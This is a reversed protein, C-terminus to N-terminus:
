SLSRLDINCCLNPFQSRIHTYTPFELLFHNEDEINMNEYLHCLMEVWPTKCLAWCGIESHLKHSNM